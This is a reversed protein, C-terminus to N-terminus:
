RGLSVRSTEDRSNHKGGRKRNIRQWPSGGTCPISVWLLIPLGSYQAIISIAKDIGSKSTLDDDVTIRVVLCGESWSHSRGIRSNHGTCLELIVRDVKKAPCCIFKTNEDQTAEPLGYM